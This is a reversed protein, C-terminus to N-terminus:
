LTEILVLCAISRVLDFMNKRCKLALLKLTMTRDPRSDFDDPIKHRDMNDALKM